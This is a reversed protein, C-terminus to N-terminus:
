WKEDDPIDKKDSRFKERLAKKQLQRDIVLDAIIAAAFTEKNEQLLTRLQKENVDVRYLFNTLGIFDSQIMDNIREILMERIDAKEAPFQDLRVLLENANM